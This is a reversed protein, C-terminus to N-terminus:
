DPLDVRKEASLDKTKNGDLSTYPKHTWRIGEVQSAGGINSCGESLCEHTERNQHSRM